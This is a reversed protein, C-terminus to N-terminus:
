LMIQNFVKILTLNDKYTEFVHFDVQVPFTCLSFDRGGEKRKM